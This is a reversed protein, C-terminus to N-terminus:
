IHVKQWNKVLQTPFHLIIQHSIGCIEESTCKNLSVKVRCPYVRSHNHTVLFTLTKVSTLWYVASMQIENGAMYLQVLRRIIQHSIECMEESTCKNLLVKVRCPYIQSHNHTVLFKLTKVSTLWYVTSMQIENETM